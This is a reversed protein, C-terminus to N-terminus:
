MTNINEKSLGRPKVLQSIQDLVDFIKDILISLNVDNVGRWSPILQAIKRILSPTEGVVALNIWEEGRDSRKSSKKTREKL